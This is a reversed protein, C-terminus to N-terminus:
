GASELLADWSSEISIDIEGDGNNDIDLRVDTVSLVVLRVSSNNGNILLEGASAREGVIGTIPVPTTFRVPLDLTTSALTGRLELTFNLIGDALVIREGSSYNSLTDSRGGSDVTLSNGDASAAIEEPVSYDVIVGVDGNSVTSLNAIDIQLNVLVVSARLVYDEPNVAGPTFQQIATEFRGNLTEGFGDNCNEFQLTVSDGAALTTPDALDGSISVTGSIACGQVIPGFPASAILEPLRGRAIETVGPKLPAGNNGISGGVSDAIGVSSLSFAGTTFALAAVTGANSATIALLEGPPEGGIPTGQQTFPNVSDGCAALLLAPFVALAVRQKM